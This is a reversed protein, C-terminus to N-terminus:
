FINFKRWDPPESLSIKCRITSPSKICGDENEEHEGSDYESTHFGTPVLEVSTLVSLYFLYVKVDSNMDFLTINGPIKSIIDLFFTILSLILWRLGTDCIRTRNM